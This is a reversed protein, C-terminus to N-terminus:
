NLICRDSPLNVIMVLVHISSVGHDLFIRDLIKSMPTPLLRSCERENIYWMIIINRTRQLIQSCILIELTQCAFQKLWMSTTESRSVNTVSTGWKVSENNYRQLSKMLWAFYILSRTRYVTKILESIRWFTEIQVLSPSFIIFVWTVWPLLEPTGSSVALVLYELLLEVRGEVRTISHFYSVTVIMNLLMKIVAISIIGFWCIIFSSDRFHSFYKTAHSMPRTHSMPRMHSLHFHSSKTSNQRVACRLRSQESNNLQMTLGVPWQGVPWTVKGCFMQRYSDWKQVRGRGSLVFSNYVMCVLVYIQETFSLLYCKFIQLM